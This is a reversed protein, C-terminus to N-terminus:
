TPMTMGSGGKVQPVHTDKLFAAKVGVNAVEAVNADGATAASKAVGARGSSPTETPLTPAKPWPRKSCGCTLCVTLSTAYTWALLSWPCSQGSTPWGSAKWLQM